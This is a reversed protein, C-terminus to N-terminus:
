LCERNDGDRFEPDLDEDIRSEEDEFAEQRSYLDDIDEQMEFDREGDRMGDYEFDSDNGSAGDNLVEGRDCVIQSELWSDDVGTDSESKSSNTGTAGKSGSAAGSFLRAHNMEFLCKTIVGQM